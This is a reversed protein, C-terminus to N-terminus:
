RVVAIKGVYTDEGDSTASFFLYIGTAVKSGRIDMLDWSATGGNAEVEAVLNGNIDTVKVNVNRALGKLGVLGQYEPRVPNPFINVNSHRPLGFSSASRYSVMGQDTYIFVEGNSGSYELALVKNSPLSSNSENFVAVQESTNEDYVWLGSNTGFWIRNGGDTMVANIPEGEFLIRNEFTPLVAESDSFIFSASPFLAPGQSTGVWANDETSINIDTFASPLGDTTSIVDTNGEGPEFVTITGSSSGLWAVGTESLDISIFENDFVLSASYSTWNSEGDLTHIPDSNAFSSVWLQDGANLSTIITDAETASDPIDAIITENSEDFLGDGISAYYYNGNFRAVDSVNTFGSISRVDWQGGSFVSYESQQESGDYTSASPAHFGFLENSVVRFNSFSDSVPGDPSFTNGSPDILGQLGDALYFSGNIQVIDNLDTASSSTLTEFADGSWQHLTGDAAVTILTENVNFLQDAGSPLDAGTDTWASTLVLLNSGSTAYMEDNVMILNTYGASGAYRNWNSFDLLNKALSGSQIGESTRIFLSDNRALIQLVVVEVGATGINVFNEVIEAENTEVVIVGIDTALYTQGNVSTIDNISKDVDLSSNALDEITLIQDEFVFDIYGSRYGIVLANAVEDYAMASVGVDALGDIKSLKRTEGSEIDRSFLGNEAACFIKEPTVALHQANSYSFHTRWTGVAIDQAPALWGSLFMLSSLAWLKLSALDASHKM